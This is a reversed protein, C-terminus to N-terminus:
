GSTCLGPARRSRGGLWWGDRAPAAATPARRRINRFASSARVKYMAARDFRQLLPDDAHLFGHDAGEDDSSTTDVPQVHSARSCQVDGPLMQSPRAAAAPTTPSLIVHFPASPHHSFDLTRPAAAGPGGERLVGSAM